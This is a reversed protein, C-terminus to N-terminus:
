HQRYLPDKAIDNLYLLVMRRAQALTDPDGNPDIRFALQLLASASMTAVRCAITLEESDILGEQHSIALQLFAATAEVNEDDEREMQPSLHHGTWIAVYAPNSRSRQIMRELVFDFIERWSHTQVMTRMEALVVAYANNRREVITDLVAAKDEFFQYVTGIPVGAREAIANMSLGEVGDAALIQVAADYMAQVRAKSRGQQPITRLSKLVSFDLEGSEELIEATQKRSGPM